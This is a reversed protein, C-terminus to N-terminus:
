LICFSKLCWLCSGSFCVVSNSRDWLFLRSHPRSLFLCSPILPLFTHRPSPGAPETRRSCVLARGRGRGPKDELLIPDTPMSPQGPGASNVAQVHFVYTKGPQLDSIQPFPPPLLSCRPHCLGVRGAARAVPQLPGGPPGPQGPPPPCALPM